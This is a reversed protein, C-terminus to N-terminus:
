ARESFGHLEIRGLKDKVSLEFDEPTGLGWMEQVEYARIKSNMSYSMKNYAPCVYFEGNVRENLNIMKNAATVFDCGRRYLYAGCTAWESIAEKEAVRRVWGFSDIEAYSWKPNDNEFVAISGDCEGNKMMDFYWHLVDFRMWQDSNAIMLPTDNNIFASARLVNVAAGMGGRPDCVIVSVCPVDLIGTYQLMQFHAPNIILYLNIKDTRFGQTVNALVIDIMSISQIRIFPKPDRYGAQSFRSGLGAMPVVINIRDDTVTPTLEREENV